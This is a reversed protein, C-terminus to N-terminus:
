HPGEESFAACGQRVCNRKASAISPIFFLVLTMNTTESSALPVNIFTAHKPQVSESDYIRHCKDNERKLLERPVTSYNGLHSYASQFCSVAPEFVAALCLCSSRVSAIFMITM